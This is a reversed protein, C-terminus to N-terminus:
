SRTDTMVNAADPKKDGYIVEFDIADPQKVWITAHVLQMAFLLHVDPINIVPVHVGLTRHEWYDM